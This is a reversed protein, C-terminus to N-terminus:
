KKKWNSFPHQSLHSNFYRPDESVEAGIWSPLVVQEDESRLEVEALVLGRNAGEFVDIQWFHGEAQVINRTKEIPTHVSLKLLELAEEMPVEYEFEVRSIGVANGKITLYASDDSTRIRVTPLPSSALYGQKLSHSQSVQTRWSENKLLFKREIELAM